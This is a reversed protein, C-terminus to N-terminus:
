SYANLLPFMTSAFNELDKNCETHMKLYLVVTPDTSLFLKSIRFFRGNTIQLRLAIWKTLLNRMEEWNVQKNENNELKSKPITKLISFM